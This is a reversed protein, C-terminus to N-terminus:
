ILFGDLFQPWIRIPFGDLVVSETAERVSFIFIWRARKGRSVPTDEFCVKITIYNALDIWSQGQISIWNEMRLVTLISIEEIVIHGIVEGLPKSDAEEKLNRSKDRGNEAAYAQDDFRTRNELEGWAEYSTNM